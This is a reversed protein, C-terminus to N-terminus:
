ACKIKCKPCFFIVDTNYVTSKSINATACDRISNLNVPLENKIPVFTRCVKLISNMLKDSAKHSTQLRLIKQSFEKVSIRCTENCTAYWLPKENLFDNEDSSIDATCSEDHDQASFFEWNSDYNAESPGKISVTQDTEASADVPFLNANSNPLQKALEHSLSRKRKWSRIM